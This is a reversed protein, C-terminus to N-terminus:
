ARPPRLPGPFIIQDDGAEDALSTDTAPPEVAIAPIPTEAIAQVPAESMARTTEFPEGAEEYDIAEIVVIKQEDAPLAPAAAAEAAAAVVIEGSLEGEARGDIIISNIYRKATTTDPHSPLADIPSAAPGPAAWESEPLLATYAEILRRRTASAPHEERVRLYGSEALQERMPADDLLLTIAAELQEVNGPAFLLGDEGDRVLEQVAARRPAVVARRCAMYELLKTPFGALPREATDATSPAVCVTAQAYMRPMDDHDIAGPLELDNELGAAKVAGDLLPRFGPDIPGALILKIPRALKVRGAAEVLLRVGCGASIRGAYLVRDAPMGPPSPEWDFRDIDVGPTLAVARDTGAMYKRATESPVLVLDARALLDNEEVKLANALSDDAARPDALTSRAVEYVVKMPPSVGDLVAHGGWASRVHVVDYDESELQRRVARRFADVQELLALDGVPVRLMRTRMWREVYPLDGGHPKLTLVDVQYRPALAKLLNTLGVGHRDPAPVVTFSVILIRAPV